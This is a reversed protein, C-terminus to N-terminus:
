GNSNAAKPATRVTLIRRSSGFVNELISGKQGEKSCVLAGEPREREGGEGGEGEERDFGELWDTRTRALGGIEDERVTRRRGESRQARERERERERELKSATTRESEFWKAGGGSARRRAAVRKTDKMWVGSGTVDSMVMMVMMLTRTRCVQGQVTGGGVTV